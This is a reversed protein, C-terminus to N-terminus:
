DTINGATLEVSEGSWEGTRGGDAALRCVLVSKMEVHRLQSTPAV